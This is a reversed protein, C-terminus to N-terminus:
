WPVPLGYASNNLGGPNVLSIMALLTVSVTGAGFATSRALLRLELIGGRDPQNRGHMAMPPSVAGPVPILFDFNATVNNDELRVPADDPTNREDWVWLPYDQTRAINRAVVTANVLRSEDDTIVALGQLVFNDLPLGAIEVTVDTSQAFSTAARRIASTRQEAAATWAMDHVVNVDGSLLDEIGVISGEVDYLDALSRGVRSQVKAV